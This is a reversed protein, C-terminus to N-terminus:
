DRLKSISTSVLLAFTEREAVRYRGPRVTEPLDDATESALYCACIIIIGSFGQRKVEEKFSAKRAESLRALTYALMQSSTMSSLIHRFRDRKANITSM